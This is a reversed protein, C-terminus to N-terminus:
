DREYEHEILGILDSKMVLGGNEIHERMGESMAKYYEYSPRVWNIEINPAVGAFTQTHMMAGGCDCGIVFPTVGKDRYTSSKRKGCEECEYIDTTGRGDYMDANEFESCMKQYEEKTLM